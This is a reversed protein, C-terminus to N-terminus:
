APVGWTSSAVAMAMRQRPYDNAVILGLRDIPGLVGPQAEVYGDLHQGLLHSESRLDMVRM